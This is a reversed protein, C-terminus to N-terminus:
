RILCPMCNSASLKRSTGQLIANLNQFIEYFLNLVISDQLIFQISSSGPSYFPTTSAGPSWGHLVSENRMGYFFKCGLSDEPPFARTKPKSFMRVSNCDRPTFQRRMHLGLAPCIDIRADLLVHLADPLSTGLVNGQCIPIGMNCKPIIGPVLGSGSLIALVSCLARDDMALDVGEELCVTQHRTIM